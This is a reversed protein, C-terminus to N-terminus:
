SGGNESSSSCSSGDGDCSSGGGGGNGCSRGVTVVTGIVIVQVHLM